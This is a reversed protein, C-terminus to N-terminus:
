IELIGFSVKCAHTVTRYGVKSRGSFSGLHCDLGERIREWANDRRCRSSKGAFRRLSLITTRGATDYKSRTLNRAHVQSFGLKQPLVRMRVTGSCVLEFRDHFPFIPHLEPVIFCKTLPGDSMDTAKPFFDPQEGADTAGLREGRHTLM